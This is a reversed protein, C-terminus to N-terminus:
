LLLLLGMWPWLGASSFPMPLCKALFWLAAPTLRRLGTPFDDTIHWSATFSPPKTPTPFAPFSGKLAWMSGYTLFCRCTHLMTFTRVASLSGDAAWFMLSNMWALLGIFTCCTPLSEGEPRVEGLTLFDVCALLGKRTWLTPPGEVSLPFKSDM